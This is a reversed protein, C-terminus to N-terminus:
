HEKINGNTTRNLDEGSRAGEGSGEGRPSKDMKAGLARCSEMPDVGSAVGLSKRLADLQAVSELDINTAVQECTLKKLAETDPLACGALLVLAICTGVPTSRIM